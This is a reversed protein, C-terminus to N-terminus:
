KNAFICQKSSHSPANVQRWFMFSAECKKCTLSVKPCELPTHDCSKCLTCFKECGFPPPPTPWEALCRMVEMSDKKASQGFKGPKAKPNTKADFYLDKRLVSLFAAYTIYTAANGTNWLDYTKIDFVNLLYEVSADQHSTTGAQHCINQVNMTAITTKMSSPNFDLNPRTMGLSDNNGFSLYIIARFGRKPEEESMPQQWIDDLMHRAQEETSFITTGFHFQDPKAGDSQPLHASKHLRVHMSWILKFFNEGHAGPSTFKKEFALRDFTTIGIEMLSQPVQDLWKRFVCVVVAHKFLKNQSGSLVQLPEGKLYQKLVTAPPSIDVVRRLGELKQQTSKPVPLVM